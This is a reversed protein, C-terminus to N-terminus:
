YFLKKELDLVDLPCHFKGLFKLYYQHVPFYELKLFKDQVDPLQFSNQRLFLFAQFGQAGTEGLYRTIAGTGCGLELVRDQPGIDLPRVLCHRARSFHYRTSWDVINELYGPAFTSRDDLGEVIDLLRQEAEAGESYGFAEAGPRFYLNYDADKQYSM